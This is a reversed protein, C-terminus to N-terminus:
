NLAYYSVGDVISGVLITVLVLVSHEDVFNPM